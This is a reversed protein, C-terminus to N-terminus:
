VVSKRDAIVALSNKLVLLSERARDMSEAFGSFGKARDWEELNSFGEKVANAIGTVISRLFRYKAIRILQQLLGGTTKKTQETKKKLEDVHEGGLKMSEAIAQGTVKFANGVDRAGDLVEMFMSKFEFTKSIDENIANGIEQWEQTIGKQVEEAERIDAVIQKYKAMGGSAQSQAEATAQAARQLREQEKTAEALADAVRRVEEEQAFQEDTMSSGLGNSASRKAIAELEEMSQRQFAPKTAKEVAETAKKAKASITSMASALQKYSNVTSSSVPKIAKSFDALDKATNKLGSANIDNVAKGLKELNSLANDLAKGQLRSGINLLIDDYEIAM